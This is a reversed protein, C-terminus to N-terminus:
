AVLVDVDWTVEYIADGSANSVLSTATRNVCPISASGIVTTSAGDVEVLRVLEPSTFLDYTNDGLVNRLQGATYTRQVSTKDGIRLRIEDTNDNDQVDLAKVRSVQIDCLSGPLATAAAASSGAASAPSSGVAALLLATAGLTSCTITTINM